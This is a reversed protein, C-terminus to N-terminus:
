CQAAGRWSVVLAKRTRRERKLAGFQDHLSDVSARLAPTESTRIGLAAPQSTPV